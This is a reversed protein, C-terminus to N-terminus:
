VRGEKVPFGPDIEAEQHTTEKWFIVINALFNQRPIPHPQVQKM